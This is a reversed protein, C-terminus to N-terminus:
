SQFFAPSLGDPSPSKDPHMVFLTAKVEEPSCLCVLEANQSTSVRRKVCELVQKSDGEMTEFLKSFYELVIDRMGREDTVLLGRADRLGHVYNRRRVNVVNHFFRSSSDGGSYWMVKGRQRWKDSQMQVLSLYCGQVESFERLDNPRNSARLRALVTRLRVLEGMEGKNQRKGWMGVGRGCEALRAAIGLGGLRNWCSIGVIITYGTILVLHARGGLNKVKLM